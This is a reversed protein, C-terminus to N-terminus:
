IGECHSAMCTRDSRIERGLGTCEPQTLGENDNGRLDSQSQIRSAQVEWERGIWGKHDGKVRLGEMYTGKFHLISM